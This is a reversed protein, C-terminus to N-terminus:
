GVVPAAAVGNQPFYGGNQSVLPPPHSGYNKRFAQPSMKKVSRFYRAFHQADEFGLLHAIEGVPRHTELLLRAIEDTRARRIAQLISRGTKLRFRRELARRSLGASKAVANVSFSRGAQKRIFSLARAVSADDVAMVSTSRRAVLHTALVTITAPAKGSKRMLMELARAAEYGAREFNVAVSTMPPDALGCVVEDNDVGVIGAADPVAIGALKCAEAVQVGCDDNGAMIGVPLPLKALWDALRRRSEPWDLGSPSLMHFAPAAFGAEVISKRFAEFRSESWPTQELPTGALGCFAFHQFGCQLLHEAAMQGIAESDTVVNILNRIEKDRHGVVVAPIGLRLVQDKLRAVDRLIIGDVDLTELTQRAVDFGGPEWYFSWPGHLQAYRATGRLYGRGSARSSEILLAVKYAKGMRQIYGVILLCGGRWFGNKGRGAKTVDNIWSGAQRQYGSGNSRSM